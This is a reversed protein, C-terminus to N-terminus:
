RAPLSGRPSDSLAFVGGVDRALERDGVALGCAPCAATSNSRMANLGASDFVHLALGIEGGLQIALAPLVGLATPM